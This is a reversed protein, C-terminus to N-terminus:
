RSRLLGRMQLHSVPLPAEKLLRTLKNEVEQAPSLGSRDDVILVEEILPPGDIVFQDPIRVFGDHVHDRPASRVAIRTPVSTPAKSQISMM